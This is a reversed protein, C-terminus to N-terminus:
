IAGFDAPKLALALSQEGGALELLGLVGEFGREGDIRAVAPREDVDGPDGLPLMQEALGHAHGALRQEQLGVIGVRDGDLALRHDLKARGRLRLGVELLQVGDAGLAARLERM